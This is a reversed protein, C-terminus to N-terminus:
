NWEYSCYLTTSNRFLPFTHPTDSHWFLEECAPVAKVSSKSTAETSSQFDLQYILSKPKILMIENVNMQFIHESCWPSSFLYMEVRM